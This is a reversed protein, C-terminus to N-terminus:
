MFSRTLILASFLVMATRAAAETVNGATEMRPITMNGEMNSCKSTPRSFDTRAMLFAM